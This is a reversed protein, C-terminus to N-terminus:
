GRTGDVDHISLYVLRFGLATCEALGPGYHLVDHLVHPNNAHVVTWPTLVNKTGGDVTCIVTTKIQRLSGSASQSSGSLFSYRTASPLDVSPNRFM